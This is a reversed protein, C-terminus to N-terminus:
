PFAWRNKFSISAAATYTIFFFGDRLSNFSNFPNLAMM